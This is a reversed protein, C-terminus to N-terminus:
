KQTEWAHKRRLMEKDMEAELIARVHDGIRTPVSWLRHLDSPDGDHVPIEVAIGYLEKKNISEDIRTLSIEYKIM